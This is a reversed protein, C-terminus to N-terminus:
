FIRFFYSYRSDLKVFVRNKVKAQILAGILDLQNVIAKHMFSDELFYRLTSMSAKQSWTDGISYKNNLDGRVVLILKLKDLIGDSHINPKYVDM